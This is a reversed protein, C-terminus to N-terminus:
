NCFHRCSIITIKLNRRFIYWNFLKKTFLRLSWHPALKHDSSLSVRGETENHFSSVNKLNKNNWIKIKVKREREREGSNTSLKEITDKKKREREVCLQCVFRITWRSQVIELSNIKPKIVRRIIIISVNMNNYMAGPSYKFVTTSVVGTECSGPITMWFCVAWM